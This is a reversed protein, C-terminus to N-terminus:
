KDKKDVSKKSGTDRLCLRIIKWAIWLLLFLHVWGLAGLFLMVGHFDASSNSHPFPADPRPVGLFNVLPDWGEKVNFVLLKDAPVTAKVEAIHREYEAMGAAADEIGGPFLTAYNALFLNRFKRFLPNIQYLLWIGPDYRPTQVSVAIRVITSSASKWWAEPSDRVTLLVKANPYLQVLEKYFICTPFDLTSRIETANGFAERLADFREPSGPQARSAETIANIHNFKLQFVSQFMYKMHHAPGFGIIPLAEMLSDTGTRGFGAHYPFFM